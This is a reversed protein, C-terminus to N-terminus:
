KADGSEIWKQFQTLTWLCMSIWFLSAWVVIVALALPLSSVAGVIFLCGAVIHAAASVQICRAKPISLSQRISSWVAGFAFFKAAMAWAFLGAGAQFWSLDIVTIILRAGAVVLILTQLVTVADLVL